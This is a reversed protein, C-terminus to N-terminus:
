NKLKTKNAQKQAPISVVKPAPESTWEESATLVPTLELLELM